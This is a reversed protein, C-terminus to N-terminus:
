RKNKDWHHHHFKRDEGIWDRGMNYALRNIRVVREKSHEHYFNHM